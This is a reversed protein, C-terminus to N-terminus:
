TVIPIFLQSVLACLENIKIRSMPKTTTCVRLYKATGRAWATLRRGTV